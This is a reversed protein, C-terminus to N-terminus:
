NLRRRRIEHQLGDVAYQTPIVRHRIDSAPAYSQVLTAPRISRAWSNVTSRARRQMNGRPLRISFGRQVKLPFSLPAPPEVALATCSLVVVCTTGVIRLLM